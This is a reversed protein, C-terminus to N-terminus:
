SSTVTPPITQRKPFLNSLKKGVGIPILHIKTNNALNKEIERDRHQLTRLNGESDASNRKIELPIRYVEIANPQLNQRNAL